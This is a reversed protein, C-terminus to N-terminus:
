NVELISEDPRVDDFTMGQLDMLAHKLFKDELLGRSPVKIWSQAPGQQLGEFVGSVGILQTTPSSPSVEIRLTVRGRVVNQVEPAGIEAFHGLQTKAVIGRAFIIPETVVVYAGSTEDQNENAVPIQNRDLLEKIESIVDARTATVPTPNAVPKGTTRKDWELQTAAASAVTAIIILLAPALRTTM